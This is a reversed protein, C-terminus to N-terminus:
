IWNCPVNIPKNIAQWNETFRIFILAMKWIFNLIEGYNQSDTIVVRFDIIVLKTINTNLNLGLIRQIGKQHPPLKEFNIVQHGRILLLYNYKILHRSLNLKWILFMTSIHRLGCVFILITLYKRCCVESIEFLFYASLKFSIIKRM